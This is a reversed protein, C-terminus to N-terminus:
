ILLIGHSIVFHYSKIIMRERGHCKLKMKWSEGESHSGQLHVIKSGKALQTHKVQGTSLKRAVPMPGPTLKTSYRWLQIRAVKECWPTSQPLKEHQTSIKGLDYNLHNHLYTYGCVSGRALQKRDIAWNLQSPPKKKYKLSKKEANTRVMNIVVTFMSVKACYM